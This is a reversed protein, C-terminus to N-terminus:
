PAAMEKADPDHMALHSGSLDVYDGICKTVVSASCVVRTCPVCQVFAPPAVITQAKAHRDHLVQVENSPMSLM